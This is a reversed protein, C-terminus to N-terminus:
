PNLEKQLEDKLETQEGKPHHRGSSAPEHGYQV